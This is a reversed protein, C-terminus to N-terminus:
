GMPEGIFMQTTPAPAIPPHTAAFSAIAPSCTLTNARPSV